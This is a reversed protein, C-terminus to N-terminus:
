GGLTEVFSDKDFFGSTWKGDETKGALMLRPDYPAKPIVFEIERDISDQSKVIPPLLGRKAPVFALWRLISTVGDLDDKAILHSVGNSYMIQTGGIQLNSTYVERGLVKNLAGAGTLIIPNGEIQIARQGLRVLYAGIGVSRCTVLTITFIDDYARSTEGAILGSGQLNEVGLGDAAGIIDTIVYREEGNETVKKAKVSPKLNQSLRQYDDPLLYLYKFGKQPNEPVNWAVKFASIVEEAIGIRAGSNASIYIRPIGLKRALESAKFFLRDEAPGFSGIIHTIDNGIVIVSRGTPYEPTFFDMHWAVMGITNSGPPRWIEHLHDQDDLVLEKVKLLNAPVKIAADHEKAQRWSHQLSQRFLEPFDYIYTTGSLHASYRKPQLWEKTPYPSDVPKGHLPGREAISVFIDQGRENKAERYTHVNLVFGTVNSITFRIPYPPSRPTQKIMLKIEGSQVRLRGFRKGHRELFGRFTEKINEPSVCVTPIFNMFIHNCDAKSNDAMKLELADLSESVVRDAESILYDVPAESSQLLGPRILARVFFRNDITNKKGEGYYLHLARNELLSAKIDFNSLRYLELQYALAPELHRIVPDESYDSRERFTFFSPNQRKKEVLFTVRRLFKGRLVAQADHIFPELHNKLLKEDDNEDVQLAINLVNEAEAPDAGEEETYEPASVYPFLDMIAHFHKRLEEMNKFAAMVGVRQQEKKSYQLQPAFDSVSFNSRMSPSHRDEGDSSNGGHNGTSEVALFQNPFNFDWEVLVPYNKAKPVHYKVAHLIYARYARRVYCEISALSIGRDDNFFFPVLVDDMSMNTEVVHRIKDFRPLQINEQSSSTDKGKKGMVIVGDSDSDSEEVASHLSKDMEQLREEYSPLLKKVLLGRAKLAVKAVTRGQLDALESLLKSYMQDLPGSQEVKDLLLLILTNKAQLKSHSLGLFYVEDLNEKHLEKCEDLVVEYRKGEVSFLKEVNLYARFLSAIVNREHGEIGERYRELLDVIPQMVQLYATKDAPKEVQSAYQDVAKQLKASAFQTPEAKLIDQINKFVKAPMRSELVALLTQM